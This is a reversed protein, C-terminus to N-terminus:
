PFARNHKKGDGKKEGTDKGETKEQDTTQGVSESGKNEERGALYEERFKEYGNDTKKSKDILSQMALGTKVWNEYEERDKFKAPKEYNEVETKGSTAQAERLQAKKDLQDTMVERINGMNISNYVKIVGQRLAKLALAVDELTDYGYVEIIDETLIRRKTGPLDVDMSLAARYLQNDIFIYVSAKHKKVQMSIPYGKLCDELRLDIVPRVLLNVELHDIDNIGSSITAPIQTKATSSQKKSEM